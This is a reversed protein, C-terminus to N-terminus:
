AAAGKNSFLSEALQKPRSGWADVTREVGAELQSCSLDALKDLSAVSELVYCEAEVTSAIDIGVKSAAPAFVGLAVALKKSFQPYFEDRWTLFKEPKKAAAKAARAEYQMLQDVEGQVALTLAECVSKLASEAQMERAVARDNAEHNVTQAISDPLHSIGNTIAVTVANSTSREHEVLMDVMQSRLEAMATKRAPDKTPVAPQSAPAKAKDIQAQTLEGIRDLPVVNNGQVFYQDGGEIPNMDEKERIDNPSYSGLNFLNQYFEGRAAQDGRLLADVNFKFHYRKKEETTLMQRNLGKEWRRIWPLMSYVIFEQGQAEINSFTARELDGLLHPPLRWFRAIENPTFKRSDLLQTEEPNMSTITADMDEELVITKYANDTGGYASQWGESLRQAAEKTLTKPHKLIVNAMAGNKFLAGAHAEAAMAIGISHAAWRIISQGTIGNSSLVGPIHLMDSAPVPTKSGDDNNVFYIIEGPQGVTIGEWSFPSTGNRVINRLPIRSPHIMWVGIVEGLSNRQKEAYNNGWGTVFATQSDIYSMIDQEPNPQDHFMAYLRHDTAKQCTRYDVQELLSCPLIAMTEAIIRQAAFVSSLTQANNENVLVGSKTAVSGRRNWWNDSGSVSMDWNNRPAFLKM